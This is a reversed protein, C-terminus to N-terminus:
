TQALSPGSLHALGKCMIGKGASLTAADTLGCRVADTAGHQVSPPGVQIRTMGGMHTPILAHMQMRGAGCVHGVAM